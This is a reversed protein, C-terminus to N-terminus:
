KLMDKNDCRYNAAPSDVELENETRLCFAITPFTLFSVVLIAPLITKFITCIM